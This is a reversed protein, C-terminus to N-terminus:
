KKIYKVIQKLHELNKEIFTLDKEISKVYVNKIVPRETYHLFEKDESAKLLLHLKSIAGTYKICPTDTGRDISLLTNGIIYVDLIM